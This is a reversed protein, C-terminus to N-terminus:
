KSYKMLFPIVTDPNLSLSNVGNEMLYSAIEPHDSPAQGCIGIYKNNRLAGKVADLMMKKVAPDREDFSKALIESDRDVGLTMQTLDNSGISFGDFHKSFEDILVVNSPIECMMIVELNNVGRHLNNKAMEKIVLEAENVTRVFPLMVKVNTLGMEERVKKIARCELAFAERYSEHYYRSAGRFGIMPNEELPEFYSGGLLNRYENTKFDSFRVIIPRPYFAAAIMSVGQSLKDVFYDEKTKYQSTLIEIKKLIEKDTVKEPHILAMPHVKIENPIIFELRALGVGATPLLSVSFASDPDALNVMVEIPLKPIKNLIIETTEFPVHGKYIYGVSGQSCDITVLDGDKILKTAHQAGVVAPLNLERSVIAAHCTRGGRETIIGAAKKMVPVWDPDTMTTVIIDGKNIRDIHSVDKVVRAKGHSIRQGISQGTTVVLKQLDQTNGTIKFKSVSNSINKNSHVTEPRAQVIYLKGDIGDKAWEVDMPSWKEKLQSYHQEIILVKKALSLVEEDTLSFKEYDQSIVKVNKVSENKEALDKKNAYVLKIKKDGLRKKVIPRFGSSLTPKHVIFEDPTVLGQVISEGLGYSSNITVVDKFGSETDLSFAVGSCALDSRVMKQIGVSIGVQFHDFNQEIRYAIARDTFLSALCNKYADIIENEGSINLFTDQQGAFSNNPLDEATASSRVAVDANETQYRKSLIKYASIIESKLDQPMEGSIILQRIEAALSHLLKLQASTSDAFSRKVSISNLLDVIKSRLKNHDLFSWYGVTTIAYGSPVEIQKSNLQSILEGLSANKGGVLPIDNLSIQELWKIYKFEKKTYSYTSTVNLLLFINIISFIFIKKNFNM